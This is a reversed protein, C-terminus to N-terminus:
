ILGSKIDVWLSNVANPLKIMPAATISWTTCPYSTLSTSYKTIQCINHWFLIDRSDSVIEKLPKGIHSTSDFWLKIVIDDQYTAWVLDKTM